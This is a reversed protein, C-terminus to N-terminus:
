TAIRLFLYQVGRQNAPSMCLFPLPFKGESSVGFRNWLFQFMWELSMKKGRVQTLDLCSEHNTYVPVSPFVHVLIILAYPDHVELIGIGVSYGFM